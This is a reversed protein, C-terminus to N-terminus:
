GFTKELLFKADKYSKKFLPYSSIGSKRCRLIDFLQIFFIYLYSYNFNKIYFYCQNRFFARWYNENLSTRTGGSNDMYHILGADPIYIIKYGKKRLRLSMDTDERIANGAYNPDFQGCKVFVERKYSMNCGICTDAPLIKNQSFDSLIGLRGAYSAKKRLILFLLFKIKTKIKSANGFVVNQNKNLNIVTVKGTVCGINKYSFGSIHSLITDENIKVDDDLFLIIDGSSNDIGVNRANPLNPFDV